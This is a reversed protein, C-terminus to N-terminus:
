EGEEEAAQARAAEEDFEAADADAEAAGADGTESPNDDQGGLFATLQGFVARDSILLALTILGGFAAAIKSARAGGSGAVGLILFLLSCAGGKRIWDGAGTTQGVLPRIGLILMCVIFESVIMKQGGLANGASSVVRDHTAVAAAGAGAAASKASEGFTLKAAQKGIAQTM